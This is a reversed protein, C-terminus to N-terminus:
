GRGRAVAYWCSPAVNRSPLKSWLSFSVYNAHQRLSWRQRYDGYGRIGHLAISLRAEVRSHIVVDCLREHEWSKPLLDSNCAIMDSGCPTGIGAKRLEDLQRKSGRGGGRGWRDAAISTRSGDHIREDSVQM